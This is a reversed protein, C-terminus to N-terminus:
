RLRKPVYMYYGATIDNMNTITPNIAMLYDVTTKYRNAIRTLTAGGEIRYVDYAATPALPTPSGGKGGSVQEMEDLNLEINSM